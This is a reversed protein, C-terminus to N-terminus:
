NGIGVALTKGVERKHTSDLLPAVRAVGRPGVQCYTGGTTGGRQKVEEREREEERGRTRERKKRKEWTQTQTQTSRMETCLECGGVTMSLTVRRCLCYVPRWMFSCSMCCVCKSKDVVCVGIEERPLHKHTDLTYWVETISISSYCLVGSQDSQTHTRTNLLTTTHLKKKQSGTHSQSGLCRCHKQKGAKFYSKKREDVFVHRVKNTM